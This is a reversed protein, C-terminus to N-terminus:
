ISEGSRRGVRRNGRRERVVREIPYEDVPNSQTALPTTTSTAIYIINNDIESGEGGRRRGERREWERGKM